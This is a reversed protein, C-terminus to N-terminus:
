LAILSSSVIMSQSLVKPSQSFTFLIHSVNLPAALPRSFLYTGCLSMVIPVLFFPLTGSSLYYLYNSYLICSACVSHFLYISVMCLLSISGLISYPVSYLVSVLSSSAFIMQSSINALSAFCFGFAIHFYIFAFHLVRLPTYRIELLIHLVWVRRYYCWTRFKGLLRMHPVM